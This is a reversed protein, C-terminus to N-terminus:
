PTSLTINTNPGFDRCVQGVMPDFYCLAGDTARRTYQRLNGSVDRVTITPNWAGSAATTPFNITCSWRGDNASGSQRTAGCGQFQTTEASRYIVEVSAVGTGIDTFDLATTVAAGVSTITIAQLEPPAADGGASVEIVPNPVCVNDRNCLEGTAARHRWTTYGSFGGNGVRDPVNLSELRWTGPASQAPLTFRCEWFGALNSGSTLACTPFLYAQNGSPDRFFAVFFDFIFGGAVGSLADTAEFGFILTRAAADPALRLTDTFNRPSVDLSWRPAVILPADVDNVGAVVRITPMSVCDGAESCFGGARAVYAATNNIRDRVTIDGPVWDGAEAYQPMTSTCTFDGNTDSGDIALPQGPWCVFRLQRGSPSRYTAALFGVGSINDVIALRLFYTVDASSADITALDSFAGTSGVRVSVGTVRPAARDEPNEPPRPILVYVSFGEIEASVTNTALNVRGADQQVYAGDVLKHIRLEAPNVGAPLQAPDYRLTLTVPTACQRGDPGHDGATGPVLGARAPLADLSLATATLFTAGSVAGAPLALSVAGEALTASGGGAGTPAVAGQEIAFAIPLLAGAVLQLSGKPRPAEDYGAKVLTVYGVLAGALRVRVQYSRAPDLVDKSTNWTVSYVGDTVRLREAFPGSSTFTRIPAGDCTTGSLACVEVALQALLSGDRDSPLGTEDIPPAFRFGDIGGLGSADLYTPQFRVASPPPASPVDPVTPVSAETCGVLAAAVVLTAALTRRRM